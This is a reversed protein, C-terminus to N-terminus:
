MMMNNNLSWMIWISGAVVIFVVIASFVLAVMNWKGGETTIEMHLFYNLHVIVQIIACLFIVVYITQMSFSQAMVLYFPIATLVFSAIFGKIYDRVSTDAHQDSM